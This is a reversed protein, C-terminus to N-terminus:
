YGEGYTPQGHMGKMDYNYKNVAEAIKGVDPLTLETKQEVVFQKPGQWQRAIVEEGSRYTGPAMGAGPLQPIIGGAPGLGPLSPAAIAAQLAKIEKDALNSPGIPTVGKERDIKDKEKRQRYDEELLTAQIRMKDATKSADLATGFADGMDLASKKAAQWAESIKEERYKLGERDGGFFPAIIAVYGALASLTNGVVLLVGVFAKAVFLLAAFTEYLTAFGKMAGAVSPIMSDLASTGWEIM